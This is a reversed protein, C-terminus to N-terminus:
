SSVPFYINFTSGKGPVGTASIFGQHNRMIKKCIALGIGTGIYDSSGHLRQFLEFIKHEYRQEFGIGNDEVSIRWYKISTDAGPDPVERGNIPAANINIVPPIGPQSYKIANSVLNMFVQQVQISVVQLVPLKSFKVVARKEDIVDQLDTIVENLIFNFDTADETLNSVNAKSYSLLADILNQMREAAANIRTFYDKSFPSFQDGEKSLIRQSFAQIKRLPEQLDHSAIYNFSELEANSRELELNKARLIENLLTDQSIDQVTGILMVNEDAGFLKGTSRFHKIKGDKTFLRYTHEVLMKTSMTENGDKLVQERDDPHILSLYKEFTPVFEGPEYGFLRFLNDSYELEGSHLNWSYSGILANEEAQAFINNKIILQQNLEGLERTRENIQHELRQSLNKQDQIDTSTGVWRQIDGGAGKQPLARSLHWRYEGDLNRLRYEHTFEEGTAVASLWKNNAEQWDDPHTIKQWGSELFENYSLGSYHLVAQSFYNLKGQVDATWVFQPMSDALLRFQAESKMLEQVIKRQETVDLVTGYMRLLQRSGSHIIKGYVSVWHTSGDPFVIRAEYALSGKDYSEAVAKDRIPKDEPHFRSILEQHTVHDKPDFGFIEVLRPSSLFKSNEMDWDFTGINAAEIALTSRQETEEIKNRAEIMETIEYGFILIGEVEKQKNFIPQYIFNYYGEVMNGEGNELRIPMERGFVSEGSTYAKDMLEYFGQSELEPLAERIPKGIISRNGTIEHFLDNAMECTHNRDKVISFLAPLDKFYDNLKKISDQALFRLRTETRLFFYSLVVAFIAFVSLLLSYLPTIFASYDKEKTRNKLRENEYDIMKAILERLQDMVIKGDSLFNVMEVSRLRTSDMVTSLRKIRKTVLWQLERFRRQQDMDDGILSDLDRLIHLHNKIGEVYSQLHINDETLLYGRQGSEADKVASFLQELKLKVLNRQYVYDSERNLTNIRSYSFISLVTLLTIILFFILDSLIIRKFHMFQVTRM